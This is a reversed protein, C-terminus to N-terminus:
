PTHLNIGKVMSLKIADDLIMLFIQSSSYFGYLLHQLTIMYSFNMGSNEIIMHIHRTFKFLFAILGYIHM